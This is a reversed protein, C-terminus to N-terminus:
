MKLKNEEKLGPIVPNKLFNTAPLYQIGYKEIFDEKGNYIVYKGSLESGFLFDATADLRKINKLWKYQRENISSSHKVEYVSHCMNERDHVVIDFEGKMDPSFKLTFVNYKGRGFSDKIGSLRTQLDLALIDELMRGQVGQVLKRYLVLRDRTTAWNLFNKNEMLSDLLTMTLGWRLAPQTFIVRESKDGHLNFEPFVRVVDINRLFSWFTNLHSAEFNEPMEVPNLIGAMNRFTENLAHSNIKIINELSVPAFTNLKGTKEDFIKVIKDKQTSCQIADQLDRSMFDSYLISELFEKQEAFVIRYIISSVQKPSLFNLSSGVSNGLKEFSNQINSVVALDFYNKWDIFRMVSPSPNEELMERPYFDHPYLLGGCAVYADVSKIGIIDSYEEFPIYTSNLVISKGFLDDNTLFHFGLSDTGSLVVNIGHMVCVDYFDSGNDNLGNLRTTEDVFVTDFGNKKLELIKNCVDTVSDERNALIYANKGSLKDIANLIATTKGTRRLGSVVLVNKKDYNALIESVIKRDRHRNEAVLNALTDDVFVRM